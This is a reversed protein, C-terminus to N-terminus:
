RVTPRTEGNGLQSRIADLMQNLRRVEEALRQNERILATRENQAIKLEQRLREILRAQSAAAEIPDAAASTAAVADAPPVSGTPEAARAAGSILSLASILLLTKM